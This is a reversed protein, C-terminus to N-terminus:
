YEPRRQIRVVRLCHPPKERAGNVLGGIWGVCRGPSSALRAREATARGDATM